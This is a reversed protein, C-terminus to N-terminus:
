KQQLEGKEGSYSNLVNKAVSKGTEKAAKKLLGKAGLSQINMYTMAGNGAATMADSFVEGAEAGYRQHVVKVSNTKLSTGLVKAAGELNNYITGYAILGGRAADVVYSLLGSNRRPQAGEGAPRDVKAALYDALSKTLKGVRNAVYGSVKVTAHTATKAAQVSSRALPGVKADERETKAAQEQGKEGVYEILQGAKEAGLGIGKSVLKAGKVISLGLRGLNYDEEQVEKKFATLSELLSLLEARVEPPVSDLLVLGVSSDPLDAYIDPFMLAGNGAQLCPSAGPLLPHTWGGVQLFVASGGGESGEPASSERFKFIRLPVPESFTSVRGDGTVFFIQVQDELRFLEDADQSPGALLSPDAELKELAETVQSSLEAYPSAAAM